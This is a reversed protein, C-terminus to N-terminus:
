IDLAGPPGDVCSAGDGDADATVGECVPEAVEGALWADGWVGLDGFPRLVALFGAALCALRGEFAFAGAVGVTSCAPVGAEDAGVGAVTADVGSLLSFANFLCRSGSDDPWAELPWDDEDFSSPGIVLRRFPSHSFV